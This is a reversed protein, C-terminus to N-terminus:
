APQHEHRKIKLDIIALPFLICNVGAITGSISLAAGLTGWTKLLLYTLAPSCFIVIYLGINLLRIRSANQFYYGCISTSCNIFYGVLVIYSAVKFEPPFDEYFRIFLILSVFYISSLLTLKKTNSWFIKRIANFDLKSALQSLHPASLANISTSLFTTLMALRQLINFVAAFAPGLMFSALLYPLWGVLQTGMTATAYTVQYRITHSLSTISFCSSVKLRLGAKRVYHMSILSYLIVSGTFAIAINSAPTIAAINSESVIKLILYFSLFIWPQIVNIGLIQTIVKHEAQYIFFIISSASLVPLSLFISLLIVYDTSSLTTTLPLTSWTSIYLYGLTILIPALLLGLVLSTATSKRYHEEIKSKPLTYYERVLYIDAGFRAFIVGLQFLTYIIFFVGALENSEFRIIILNSLLVAVAGLIRVCLMHLSKSTLLTLVNTAM